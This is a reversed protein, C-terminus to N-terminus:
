ETSENDEMGEAERRTILLKSFGEEVQRNVDWNYITSEERSIDPPGLEELFCNELEGKSAYDNIAYIVGTKLKTGEFAKGLVLGRGDPLIIFRLSM